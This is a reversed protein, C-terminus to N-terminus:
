GSVGGFTPVQYEGLSLNEASGNIKTNTIDIVGKVGLIRTELQSVRVILYSSEAWEQRLELLYAKIVEEIATKTNTWNSGEEFTVTTTVYVAVTEASKVSVVHGIPALGYGEGANQM